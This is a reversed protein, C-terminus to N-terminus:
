ITFIEAEINKEETIFLMGFSQRSMYVKDAASGPNFMLVGNIINKEATHTHGYVVCDVNDNKFLRLIRKKIGIPSGAGHTIGIRVGAIEIVMKGPLVSKIEDSDMNGAVAHVPAIQQLEEIVRMEVIDGAHIICDVKEFASLIESAIDDSRAPIHTDSIVGITVL